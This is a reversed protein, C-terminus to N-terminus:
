CARLMCARGRSVAHACQRAQQAEVHTVCGRRRGCPACHRKRGARRARVKPAQTDACALAAAM